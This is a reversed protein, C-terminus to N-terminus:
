GRLLIDLCEEARAIHAVIEHRMGDPDVVGATVKLDGSNIFNGAFAGAIDIGTASATSGTAKVSIKFPFTSFKPFIVTKAPLVPLRWDAEATAVAAVLAPARLPAATAVAASAAATPNSAPLANPFMLFEPKIETRAVPSVPAVAVPM